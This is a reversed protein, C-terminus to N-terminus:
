KKMTLAHQYLRNKKVGTIRAALSAAQKVPLEELLISLVREAEVDIEEERAPAGAVLLVM